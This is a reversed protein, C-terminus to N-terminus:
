ELAIHDSPWTYGKKTIFDGWVSEVRAKQVQSLRFQNRVHSSARAQYAELGPLAKGFDGLALANYVRSIQQNPEKILDEYRVTSVAGAQIHEIGQSLMREHVIYAALIFDELEQETCSELAYRGTLTSWLKMNSAFVEYPNREIIVYRAQPFRRALVPVRYGHTPSKLVMPKGQQITLLKLFYDFTEIWIQQERPSRAELVLLRVVDRMLSPVILAEYASPAGMALLAFEDEQPSAWSYRLDDMVRRVRQGRRSDIWRESLVFHTPNLCAYTSPFGFRSDCCLLEHLLTTGSRWFGLVFIPSPTTVTALADAHSKKQIYELASQTISNVRYLARTRRTLRSRAPDIKAALGQWASRVLRFRDITCDTGNVIM